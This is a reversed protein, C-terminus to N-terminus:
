WSPKYNKIKDIKIKKWITFWNKGDIKELLSFSNFYTEPRQEIFYIDGNPLIRGYYRGIQGGNLNQFMDIKLKTGEIIFYGPTGVNPNNILSLNPFSDCNVFLVQGSNFFRAFVKYTSQWNPSSSKSFSSDKYYIASTDILDKNLKRYREKNYKFVKPNNVRIGGESTIQYSVCSTFYISLIMILLRNM